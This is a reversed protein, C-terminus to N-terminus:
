CQYGERQAPPADILRALGARSARGAIGRCSLRYHNSQTYAFALSFQMPLTTLRFFTLDPTETELLLPTLGREGMRISRGCMM